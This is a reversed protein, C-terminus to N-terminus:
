TTPPAPWPAQARADGWMSFPSLAREDLAASLMETQAWGLTLVIATGLLTPCHHPGLPVPLHAQARTGNSPGRLVSSLAASLSLLRRFILSLTFFGLNLVSLEAALPFPVLSGTVGTCTATRGTATTCGRALLCRERMEAPSASRIIKASVAAPWRARLM